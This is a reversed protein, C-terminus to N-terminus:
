LFYHEIQHQVVDITLPSSKTEFTIILNKSPFIGNEFYIELKEYCQNAYLLNDMMGFHEWYYTNGTIPHRITFDPFIIANNIKLECEYRYPIRYQYLFTDILVESKSRLFNGNIGKHILTEPYATNKNYEESSWIKLEESIPKIQGKLLSHFEPASFLKDEERQDISFHKKYEEIALLENKLDTLCANLYVKYALKEAYERKKKPIYIWNGNYYEYWKWYNGNKIIKM